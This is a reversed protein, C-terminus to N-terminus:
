KKRKILKISGGKNFGPGSKKSIVKASEGTGHLYEDTIHSYQKTYPSHTFSWKNLPGKTRSWSGGKTEENSYISEDSFTPHGPKKFKDIFHASSQKDLMSWARKPDDEYFGKYDYYHRPDSEFGKQWSKHKQIADVWDSYTKKVARKQQKNKKPTAMIQNKQL